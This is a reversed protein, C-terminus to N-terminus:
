NNGNNITKNLEITKQQMEMAIKYLRKCLFIAQNSNNFEISKLVLGLQRSTLEVIKDKGKSFDRRNKFGYLFGGIKVSDQVTSDYHNAANELILNFDSDSIEVEASLTAFFSHKDNM